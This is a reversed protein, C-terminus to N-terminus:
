WEGENVTQIVLPLFVQHVHLVGIQMNEFASYGYINCAQVWYYYMEDAAATLDTYGVGDRVGPPGVRVGEGVAVWDATV